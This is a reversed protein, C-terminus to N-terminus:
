SDGYIPLRLNEVLLKVRVTGNRGDNADFILMMGRENPYLGITSAYAKRMKNDVENFSAFRLAVATPEPVKVVTLTMENRPIKIKQDAVLGFIEQKSFNFFRISGAPIMEPADEIAFIRYATTGGPNPLFIFLPQKMGVAVEHSAILKYQPEGEPTNGSTRFFQIESSGSYERPRSRIEPSILLPQMAEGEKYFLEFKGGNLTMTSFTYSRRDGNSDQAWTSQFLALLSLLCLTLLKSRM